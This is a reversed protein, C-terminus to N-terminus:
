FPLKDNGCFECIELARCSEQRCSPCIELGKDFLDNQRIVNEIQEPTLTNMILLAYDEANQLLQEMVKPPVNIQEM